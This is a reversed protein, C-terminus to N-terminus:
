EGMISVVIGNFGAM